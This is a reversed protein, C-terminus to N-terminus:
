LRVLLMLTMLPPLKNTPQGGGINFQMGVSVSGTLSANHQHAAVADMVLSHGHNLSSNESGSEEDSGSGQWLGSVTTNNGTQVAANKTSPTHVNHKHGSPGGSSAAGTPTHNGAPDTTGAVNVTGATVGWPSTVPMQSNTLTFNQTGGAAGPATPDAGLWTTTIRSAAGAGLNDMGAILRGAMDPLALPKNAAFDAAASVGKGGSVSINAFVWLEEYLSQTDVNARETAGSAASGITRGNLRVYGSLPQDDFRVKIDRTKFVSDPDVTTGAGGASTTTVPISIDDFILTGTKTTLRQRYYGDALYILPFRGAADAEIPNPHPSTLALDKYGIRPTSTGGDYLFLRAGSLPKANSDFQQMRSLPYLGAAQVATALLVLIGALIFRKLM